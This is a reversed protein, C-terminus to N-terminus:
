AEEIGWADHLHRRVVDTVWAAKPTAIAAAGGRARIADLEPQLDQELEQKFRGLDVTTAAELEIVAPADTDGHLKFLRSQGPGPNYAVYASVAGARGGGPEVIGGALM